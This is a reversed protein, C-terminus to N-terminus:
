TATPFGAAIIGLGQDSGLSFKMPIAQGASVRHLLPPTKCRSVFGTFPFGSTQNPTISIGAPRQGPLSRLVTCVMSPWALMT